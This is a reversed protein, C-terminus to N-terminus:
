MRRQSGWSSSNSHRSALLWPLLHLHLATSLTLVRGSMKMAYLAKQISGKRRSSSAHFFISKGKKRKPVSKIRKLVLNSLKQFYRWM